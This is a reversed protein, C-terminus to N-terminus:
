GTRREHSARGASSSKATSRMIALFHKVLATQKRSTVGITEIGPGCDRLIRFGISPPCLAAVSRPFLSVGLGAQVLGLMGTISSAELAVTPVIGRALLIDDLMWRYLDWQELTGMILPQSSLDEVRVVKRRALPWSKAFFVCLPERSLTV